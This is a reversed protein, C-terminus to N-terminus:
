SYRIKNCDWRELYSAEKTKPNPFMGFAFAFRSEDNNKMFSEKPQRIRMLPKCFIISDIDKTFQNGGNDEQSDKFTEIEYETYKYTEHKKTFKLTPPRVYNKGMIASENSM